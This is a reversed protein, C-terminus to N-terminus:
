NKSNLIYTVLEKVISKDKEGLLNLSNAIYSEDSTDTPVTIGAFLSNFDTNLANCIDVLTPISIGTKGNEVLSVFNVSKQIDSALNEQTIGRLLRIQRINKGLIVLINSKNMDEM